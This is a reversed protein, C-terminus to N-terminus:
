SSIREPGCQPRARGLMRVLRRPAIQALLIREFVAGNEDPAVLRPIQFPSESWRLARAVSTCAYSYGAARVSALTDSDFAGHPYSCGVVPIGTIGELGRRCEELEWRQQDLKCNPLQPHTVTHAAIEVLPDRAAIQLEARTMARHTDRPAQPVCAWSLIQELEEDREQPSMRSLLRWAQQLAAQQPSRAPEELRWGQVTGGTVRNGADGLRVTVSEGGAGIKLTKAVLHPQLFARALADWWFERGSDIAGTTIFITAPVNLARLIPFANHFNDAYGDDFTVALCLRPLERRELRRAIEGVTMFTYGQQRAALLHERFNNPSVCLSYPDSTDNAIRHYMLVAGLPTTMSRLAQRVIEPMRSIFRV